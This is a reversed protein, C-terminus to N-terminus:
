LGCPNYIHNSETSSYYRRGDVDVVWGSGTVRIWNKRCRDSGTARGRSVRTRHFTGKVGIRDWGWWRQEWLQATHYMEPIVNRCIAWVHGAMNGAHASEHPNDARQYCGSPTVAIADRSRGRLTRAPGHFNARSGAQRSQRPPTMEPRPWALCSGSSSASSSPRPWEVNGSWRSAGKAGSTLIPPPRGARRGTAPGPWPPGRCMTVGAAALAAPPM